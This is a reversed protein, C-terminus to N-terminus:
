IPQDGRSIVDDFYGWFRGWDHRWGGFVGFVFSCDKKLELKLAPRTKLPNSCRELEIQQRTIAPWIKDPSLLNYREHFKKM